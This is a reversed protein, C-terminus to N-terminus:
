LLLFWYHFDTYRSLSGEALLVQIRDLVYGSDFDDGEGPTILGRCLLDRLFKLDRMEGAVQGFTELLGAEVGHNESGRRLNVGALGDLAHTCSFVHLDFNG